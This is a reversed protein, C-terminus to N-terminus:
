LINIQSLNEEHHMLQYFIQLHQENESKRIYDTKNINLGNHMKGYKNPKHVSARILNEWIFRENTKMHRMKRETFDM